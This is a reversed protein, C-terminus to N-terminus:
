PAAQKSKWYPNVLDEFITMAAEAGQGSATVIQKYGGEVDGASYIGPINTRHRGDRKIYGEPTLEIGVKKALEVAPVYGVAIFVGDVPVTRTEGTLNDLLVTEEVKNKGLIEKVETNFFVPINNDLLNKTLHEQARLRDRRHVMMINVGINHLHLAETVASNGGGVILVKKGRFLPGDCTSCYSVGHGSLRTEGPVNLRRYVAGTALLLARAKFRRRSSLVVIPEGPQIDMVEEAAFIKVYELAHSVMLDVLAKGGVQTLGPYNEVVPTTAVQGGLAGREIIVTRLGSRASYIGATLGAPGGGVIVLDAEVEEADSDPIFVTQQEMRQLSLMFLEEPQAGQAILLDNSYTQPVSQASYQDALDPNAQIDIIELSIKGPKEIAAKLANVAQQPCYPCSPSVFLKINRPSDIKKLVQLSDASLDTKGHGMMLLAEVFTRAEEGVPAGLWRIHYREPDFLLTPSHTVKWKKAMAHSLDYEHLTVKPSVERVARILFRTAHSFPENRGPSTFLILPIDRALNKFLPKLQAELQDMVARETKPENVYAEM